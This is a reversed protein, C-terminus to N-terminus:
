KVKKHLSLTLKQISLIYINTKTMGGCFKLGGRSSEIPPVKPKELM